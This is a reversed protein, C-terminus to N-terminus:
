EMMCQCLCCISSTTSHFNRCSKLVIIPKRRRNIAKRKFQKTNQTKRLMPKTRAQRQNKRAKKTKRRQGPGGYFFHRTFVAEYHPWNNRKYIRCRELYEELIRRSLYVFSSAVQRRIERARQNIYTLASYKRVM